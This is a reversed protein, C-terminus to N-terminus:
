GRFMRRWWPRQVGEQAGGTAPRPEAKRVLKKQGVSREEDEVNRGGDYGVASSDVIFWSGADRDLVM